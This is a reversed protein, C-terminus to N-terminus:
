VSRKVRRPERCPKHSGDISCDDMDLLAARRLEVLLAEHLGTAGRGGAM